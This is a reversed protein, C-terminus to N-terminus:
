RLTTRPWGRWPHLCMAEKVKTANHGHELADEIESHWDRYSIADEKTTEQFLPFGLCRNKPRPFERRVRTCERHM